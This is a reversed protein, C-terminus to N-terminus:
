HRSEAMKTPFTPYLRKLKIRADATTFQWDAKAQHMNRDAVEARLSEIDGIRRPQLQRERWDGTAILGM